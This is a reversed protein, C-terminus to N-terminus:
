VSGFPRSNNPSPHPCPLPLNTFILLLRLTLQTYNCSCTLQESTYCEHVIVQELVLLLLRHGDDIEDNNNTNYKNDTGNQISMRQMSSVSRDQHSLILLQLELCSRICAWRDGVFLASLKGYQGNTVRVLSNLLKNHSQILRDGENGQTTIHNTLTRFRSSAPESVAIMVTLLRQLTESLYSAYLDGVHSSSTQTHTKIGKFLSRLLCSSSVVLLVSGTSLSPSSPHVTVHQTTVDFIKVIASLVGELGSSNMKHDIRRVIHNDTGGSGRNDNLVTTCTVVLAGLIASLDHIMRMSRVLSSATNTSSPPPRTTSIATNGVIIEEMHLAESISATILTSVYSALDAAIGEVIRPLPFSLFPSFLDVIGAIGRLFGILQKQRGMEEYPSAYLRAAMRLRDECHSQLQQQVRGVVGASESDNGQAVISETSKMSGDSLICFAVVIIEDDIGDFSGCTNSQHNCCGMVAARLLPLSSPDNAISRLSFYREPEDNDCDDDTDEAATAVTVM